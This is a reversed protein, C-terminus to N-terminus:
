LRVNSYRHSAECAIFIEKTMRQYSDGMGDKKPNVKRARLKHIISSLLPML